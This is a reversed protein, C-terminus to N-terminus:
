RGVGAKTDRGGAGAIGVGAILRLTDPVSTAHIISDGVGAGSDGVGASTRVHAISRHEWLDTGGVEM